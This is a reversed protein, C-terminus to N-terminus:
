GCGVQEGLVGHHGVVRVGGFDSAERGQNISVSIVGVSRDESAGENSGENDSGDLCGDQSEDPVAM